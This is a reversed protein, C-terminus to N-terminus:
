FTLQIQFVHDHHGFPQNEFVSLIEKEREHMRPLRWMRMWSRLTSYTSVDQFSSKTLRGGFIDFIAQRSQLVVLM